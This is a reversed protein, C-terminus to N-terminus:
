RKIRDMLTITAAIKVLITVFDRYLYLVGTLEFIVGFLKKQTTSFEKERRGGVQTSL